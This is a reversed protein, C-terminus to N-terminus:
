EGYYMKLVAKDLIHGEMKNRLDSYYFGPKVDPMIDLAYMVLEYTHRRGPAPGGYGVRAEDSLEEYTGYLFLGTTENFVHFDTDDFSLYTFSWTGEPLDVEYTGRLDYNMGPPLHTVKYIGWVSLILLIFVIIRFFVKKM